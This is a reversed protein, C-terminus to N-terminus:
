EDSESADNEKDSKNASKGNEQNNKQATTKKKKRKEKLGSVVGGEKKIKSIAGASAYHVTLSLNKPSDGNSLIKNYGVDMLSLVIKGNEEKALGKSIWIPLNIAMDKLSIATIVIPSKSSFGHAGFYKTNKWISPKKQDAKKGSGANGRGGRHGAGRHKKKSGYFHTHLGRSRSNKKRKNVVM